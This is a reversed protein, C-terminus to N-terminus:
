PTKSAPDGKIAKDISSAVRGLENYLRFYIKLVKSMSRKKSSGATLDILFSWNKNEVILPRWEVDMERLIYGGRM